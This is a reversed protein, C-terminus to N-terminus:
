FEGDDHELMGCRPFAVIRLIRIFSEQKLLEKQRLKEKYFEKMFSLDENIKKDIPYRDFKRLQKQLGEITTKELTVSLEKDSSTNFYRVAFSPTEGEYGITILTAEQNNPMLMTENEADGVYFNINDSSNLRYLSEISSYIVYSYVRNFRKGNTVNAHLPQRSFDKPLTGNDINIWGTNTWTFGYTQM